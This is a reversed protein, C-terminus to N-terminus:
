FVENARMSEGKPYPTCHQKGMVCPECVSKREAKENCDMGEVMKSKVLKSVNDMGLHGFRCHWLQMDTNERAINVQEDPVVKLIYLKGQM